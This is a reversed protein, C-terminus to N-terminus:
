APVLEVLSVSPMPLDFVVELLGDTASVSRKPELDEPHDRVALRVWGEEDPWAAARGIEGRAAVSIPSEVDSRTGMRAERDAREARAAASRNTGSM